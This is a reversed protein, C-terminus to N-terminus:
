SPLVPLSRKILVELVLSPSRSCAHCVDFEAGQLVSDAGENKLVDDKREETREFEM